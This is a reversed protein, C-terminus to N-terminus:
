LPGQFLLTCYITLVHVNHLYFVIANLAMQFDSFFKGKLLNLLIIIFVTCIIIYVSNRALNFRADWRTTRSRLALASSPSLTPNQSSPTPRKVSCRSSSGTRGTAGGMLRCTWRAWWVASSTSVPRRVMCVWWSCHFVWMNSCVYM